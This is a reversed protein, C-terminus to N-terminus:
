LGVFVPHSQIIREAESVSTSRPDALKLNAVRLDELKAINEPSSIVVYYLSRGEYSEGIKLLKMRPSSKVLAQLYDEMQSHRTIQQGFDYGLVSQITPIAPDFTTQLRSLVPAEDASLLLPVLVFIALFRFRM